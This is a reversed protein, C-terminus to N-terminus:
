VRADSIVAHLDPERLISSERCGMPSPNLHQIWCTSRCIRWLSDSPSPVRAPWAMRKRMSRRVSPQASRSKPQVMPMSCEETRLLAPLLKRRVPKARLWSRKSRHSSRLIWHLSWPPHCPRTRSVLPKSTTPWAVPLMQAHETKLFRSHRAQVSRLCCKGFVRM